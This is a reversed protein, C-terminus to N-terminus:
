NDTDTVREALEQLVDRQETPLEAFKEPEREIFTVADSAIIAVAKRAVQAGRLRDRMYEIRKEWYDPDVVAKGLAAEREFGQMFADLAEPFLPPEVSGSLLDAGHNPGPAEATESTESRDRGIQLREAIADIAAKRKDEPLGDVFEGISDVSFGVVQDVRDIGWVNSRSVGRIMPKAIEPM